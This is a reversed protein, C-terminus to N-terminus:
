DAVESATRADDRLAEVAVVDHDLRAMVFLTAPGCNPVLQGVNYRVFYFAREMLIMSRSRRRRHSSPAPQAEANGLVYHLLRKVMRGATLLILSPGIGFRKTRVTILGARRMVEQFGEFSYLWRHAPLGLERMCHYWRTSIGASLGVEFCIVGNPRLRKAMARLAAVPDPFHSLLDIHYVVDFSAGPLQSNEIFAEEVPIGLTKRVYSACTADPEMGQVQYGETRAAVLFQGMGCGIELLQGRPCNRAVWRARLKAACGYYTDFHMDDAAEHDLPPSPDLYVIGCNCYYADYGAESWVLRGRAEGCLLCRGSDANPQKASMAAPSDTPTPSDGRDVHGSSQVSVM